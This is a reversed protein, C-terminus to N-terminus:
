APTTAAPSRTTGPDDFTMEFRDGPELPAYAGRDPASIDHDTDDLNVFAVTAGPEVRAVAPVFCSRELEVTTTSGETHRNVCRIGGGGALAPAAGIMASTSVVLLIWRRM